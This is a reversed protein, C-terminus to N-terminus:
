DIRSLIDPIQAEIVSKIGTDNDDPQADFYKAQNQVEQKM